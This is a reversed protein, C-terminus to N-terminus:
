LAARFVLQQQGLTIMDGDQLVLTASFPIDNVQVGSVLPELVFQEGQQVVRACHGENPDSEGGGPGLVTTTGMRPIRVDSGPLSGVRTVAQDLVFIHEEGGSDVWALHAQMLERNRNYVGVLEAASLAITSSSSEGADQSDADVGELAAAWGDENLFEVDFDGIEVRDGSRLPYATTRRGGVVIPHERDVAEVVWFGAQTSFRAHRAVVSPDDLPMDVDPASGLVVPGDDFVHAIVLERGRLIRFTAM